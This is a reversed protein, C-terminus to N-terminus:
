SRFFWLWGACIVLSLITIPIGSCAHRRWDLTVGCLAAQEVVILNAISGILLLNGALTSVLALVSGSLPDKAFPLLLMVAPVNSVLNSLLLCIAALPLPAHLDIGSNAAIEVLQEPMGTVALAHNIVFLGCFLVLLMWDVLAFMERSATRRSLLLMGAGALAIIERPWPCVLFASIIMALVLLGKAAQWGNWDVSQPDIPSFEGTWQGKQQLVLVGWVALLGLMSPVFALRLYGVFDIRLVQGILMNQPNGIITAASGINSAAALGILFPIPNLSRRSCISILLPTVALCIIDNALLASLIGCTFIVVLLLRAPSLQGASVASVVRGYFGCLRFQASLIMLGFLLLITSWDVAAVATQLDIRGMVMLAIAGLLAVGTRDLALGPLRGLFMGIYVLLFVGLTFGDM